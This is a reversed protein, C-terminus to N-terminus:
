LRRAYATVAARDEPTFLFQPNPGDPGGTGIATVDFLSQYVDMVEEWTLGNHMFTDGQRIRQGIRRLSPIKFLATGDHPYPNGDPDLLRPSIPNPNLVCNLFAEACLSGRILPRGLDPSGVQRVSGDPENIRFLFVPQGSLNLESSFNGALWTNQAGDFGISPLPNFANIRDLRPGSHCMACLGRPGDEFFARGRAELENRAPPLGPDTGDTVFRAMARSSFQVRQFEALLNAEDLTPLRGPENHTQVAAIAQGPLDANHRGDLMLHTDLAATDEVTPARRRLTVRFHGDPLQECRDPYAVCNEVTINPPLDLKINFTARTRLEQYNGLQDRDDDLARFLPGTPQRNFSVQIIRPTITFHKEPLHCTACTRGNGDFTEHNFLTRGERVDQSGRGVQRGEEDFLNGTFIFRDGLSPAAPDADQFSMAHAREILRIVRAPRHKDRADSDVSDMQAMGLVLLLVSFAIVPVNLRKM